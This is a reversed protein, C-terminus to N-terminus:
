SQHRGYILADFDKRLPEMEDAIRAIDPHQVVCQRLCNRFEACGAFGLRPSHPLTMAFLNRTAREPSKLLGSPEGVNGSKSRAGSSLAGSTSIDYRSAAFGMSAFCIASKSARIRSTGRNALSLM